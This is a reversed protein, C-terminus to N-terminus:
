FHQFNDRNKSEHRNKRRGNAALTWSEDGSVGPCSTSWSSDNWHDCDTWRRVQNDVLSAWDSLEAGGLRSARLLHSVRLVVVHVDLSPGVNSESEQNTFVIQHVSTTAPDLLSLVDSTEGILGDVEGVDSVEITALWIEGGSSEQVCDYSTSDGSAM